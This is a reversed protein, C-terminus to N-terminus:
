LGDLFNLMATQTQKHQEGESISADGDGKQAGYSGFQAHNGGEIAVFRANEPQKDTSKVKDLDAVKDNTGYLSLTPMTVSKLSKNPYAAWFALGVFKDNADAVVDGSMAGGLSHGAIVWREVGAFKNLYKLGKKADLVALDLPMKIIAVSYGKDVLGALIKTYAEPAVAGGPYFLVGLNKAVAKTNAKNPYLYIYNETNQVSVSKPIDVFFVDAEYRKCANASLLFLAIFIYFTIKM